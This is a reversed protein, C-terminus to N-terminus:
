STCHPMQLRRAPVVELAPLDAKRVGPDLDVGEAVHRAGAADADLHGFLHALHPSPGRLPDPSPTPPGLLIM